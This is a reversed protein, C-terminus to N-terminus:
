DIIFYQSHEGFFLDAGFYISLRATQPHLSGFPQAEGDFHASIRSSLVKPHKALGNTRFQARQRCINRSLTM